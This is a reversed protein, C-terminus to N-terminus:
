NRWATVKGIVATYSSRGPSSLTLTSTADRPWIACRNHAVSSSHLHLWHFNMFHYLALFAFIKKDNIAELETELFNKGVFHFWPTTSIFFTFAVFRATSTSLNEPRIHHVIMTFVTFIFRCINFLEILLFATSSKHSLGRLRIWLSSCPWSKSVRVYLSVCFVPLFIWVAREEWSSGRGVAVSTAWSANFAICTNVIKINGM